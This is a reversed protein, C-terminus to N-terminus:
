EAQKQKLHNIWLFFFTFFNFFNLIRIQFFYFFKFFSNTTQIQNRKLFIISSHTHTHRSLQACKYKLNIIVYLTYVNNYDYYHHM